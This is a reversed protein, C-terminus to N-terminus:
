LGKEPDLGLTALLRNQVQLPFDSKRVQKVTNRKLHPAFARKMEALALEQVTRTYDEDRSPTKYKYAIAQSLVLMGRVTNPWGYMSMVLEIYNAIYRQLLRIDEYVVACMTYFVLTGSEYAAAEKCLSIFAPEKWPDRVPTLRLKLVDILAMKARTVNSSQRIHKECSCIAVSFSATKLSAAWISLLRLEESRSDIPVVADIRNLVAIQASRSIGSMQAATIVQALEGSPLLDLWAHFFRIGTDDEAGLASVSERFATLANKDCVGQRIIRETLLEELMGISARGSRILNSCLDPLSDGAIPIVREWWRKFREMDSKFLYESISIVVSYFFRDNEQIRRLFEQLFRDNESFGLVCICYFSFANRDHMLGSFGGDRFRPSREYLHLLTNAAAADATGLRSTYGALRDDSFLTDLTSDCLREPLVSQMASRIQAIVNAFRSFDEFARECITLLRRAVEDERGVAGALEYLMGTLAFLHDYDQKMFGVYASLCRTLLYDSLAASNLLGADTLVRLSHLVREYEWLATDQDSDLLYRYADYIDPLHPSLKEYRLQPLVAGTFDAIDEGYRVADLYFARDIDPGSPDIFEKASGDIMVFDGNTVPRLAGSIRDAPHVGVIMTCPVRDCLDAGIRYLSPEGDERLFYFLNDTSDATINTRNTSFTVTRAIQPSFAREIAAIWLEVKEPTDKIVLPRRESPRRSYEGILYSLACRVATGRGDSVFARIDDLTIRGGAATDPLLPLYPARETPADDRYYDNEDVKYADWVTAGFWEYPYGKAGGVLCQKIFTGSRHSIGSKRLINNKPRLYDFCLGYAAPAIEFYDYSRFLGTEQSEDAANKRVLYMQLIRLASPSLRETLGSSYSFVGFGESPVVVGGRTIDCHPLCRTYILQDLM